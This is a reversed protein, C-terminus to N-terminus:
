QNQKVSDIMTMLTNIKTFKGFIVANPFQAELAV